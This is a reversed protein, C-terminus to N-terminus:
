LKTSFLTSKPTISHPSPPVSSEVLTIGLGSRLTIVEIPNSWVSIRPLVSLSIARAFDPM